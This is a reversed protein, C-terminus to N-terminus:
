QALQPHAQDALLKVNLVARPLVYAAAGKFQFHPAILSAVGLVVIVLWLGTVAWVFSTWRIRVQNYFYLLAVTAALYEMERYAFAAMRSPGHIQSASVFTWAIFLAWLAFGSPLRLRPLRWLVWILMPFTALTGWLWPIGLFWFLPYSLFFAFPQWSLDHREAPLVSLGEAM